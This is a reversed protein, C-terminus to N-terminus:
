RAFLPTLTRTRSFCFNGLSLCQPFAQLIVCVFFFVSVFFLCWGAESMAREKKRDEYGLNGDLDQLIHSNKISQDVLVQGVDRVASAEHRWSAHAKDTAAVLDKTGDRGGNGALPDDEILVNGHGCLLGTSVQTLFDRDLDAVENGKRKGKEAQQKRERGGRM